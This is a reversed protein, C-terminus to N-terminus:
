CWIFLKFNNFVIPKLPSPTEATTNTSAEIATDSPVPAEAIDAATDTQTKAPQDDAVESSTDVATIASAEPKPTITIFTDLANCLNTTMSMSITIYLDDKEGEGQKIIAEVIIKSVGHALILSHTAAGECCGASSIEGSTCQM